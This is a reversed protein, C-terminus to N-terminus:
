ARRNYRAMVKDFPDSLMQEMADAVQELVQELAPRDARPFDSLVYHTVEEGPAPRSIGIRVRKFESSGLHSIISKIGNHGGASGKYRLRMAGFDTDLDDYLVVLDDPDYGYYDMMARVAEGSLNMFTMPKLLVVKEGTVVGEAVEAKM